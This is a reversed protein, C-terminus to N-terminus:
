ISLKACIQLLGAGFTNASESAIYGQLSNLEDYLKQAEVIKAAADVGQAGVKDVMYADVAGSNRMKDLAAFDRLM